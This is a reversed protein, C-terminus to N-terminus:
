TERVAEEKSVRSTPLPEEDPYGVPILLMPQLHAPLNLVESVKEGDFAGIYCTGLGLECAELVMNELSFATDTISYLNRGREGYTSAKELDRCAVVLLPADCVFSQRVAQRLQEKVESDTIFFFKRPQVNGASPAWVLAEKLKEIVEAPIPADKFKRISRRKKIAELVEMDEIKM